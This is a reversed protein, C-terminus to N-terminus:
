ALNITTGDIAILPANEPTDWSKVLFGRRYAEKPNLHISHTGLNHCSHHVALLNVPQNDGGHKRLKRHHIAYTDGLPLGCWDCHWCQREAIHERDVM